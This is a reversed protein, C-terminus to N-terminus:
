AYVITGLDVDDFIEGTALDILAINKAQCEAYLTELAANSGIHEWRLAVLANEPKPIDAWGQSVRVRRFHAPVDTGLDKGVYKTVYKEAHGGSDVHVM